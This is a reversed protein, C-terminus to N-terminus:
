IKGGTKIINDWYAKMKPFLYAKVHHYSLNRKPHETDICTFTGNKSYPINTALHNSSYGNSLICFLEDLHKKTIGNRWMEKTESDSSLNMGTVLLIIPQQFEKHIAQPNEPLPYIWKDPVSFYKLNKKKILARVNEAGICRNVLWQWGPIDNKQRTENDLYLKVLFGDLKPHRAVRIFSTPQAYLTIFGANAFTEENQSVRDSLFISDLKKKLSHKLPLCYPRMLKRMNADILPNGDLNPYSKSSQKETLIKKQLNKLVLQLRQDLIQITENNKEVIAENYELKIYQMEEQISPEMEATEMLADIDENEFLIADEELSYRLSSLAYFARDITEDIAKVESIWLNICLNFFLISLPYKNM